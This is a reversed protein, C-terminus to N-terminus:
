SYYDGYAQSVDASKNLVTGLVEVGELLDVTRNFDDAVTGGEEVVLLLADLKPAFGVVDDGVLVPPLDFIVIRGPYRHKLDTVLQEMRPSALHESSIHRDRSGPLLVFRDIGPNVLLSEVPDGDLLLDALGRRPNFSFMDHVSPKRLDADVVIVTNKLGMAISIGLNVSTLTKGERAGASTVGITNWGNQRMRHLVRTRLLRYADVVPGSDIGTLV